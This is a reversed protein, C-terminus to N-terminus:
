PRALRCRQDYPWGHDLGVVCWALEYGPEDAIIAYYIPLEARSLAIITGECFRRPMRKQPWTVWDAEHAGIAVAAFGSAWHRGRYEAAIRAFVGPDNCRPAPYDAPARNTKAARDGSWAAPACLASAVM